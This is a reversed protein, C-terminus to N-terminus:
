SRKYGPEKDVTCFSSPSNRGKQASPEEMGMKRWTWLPHMEEMGLPAPAEKYQNHFDMVFLLGRRPTTDQPKFFWALRRHPHTPRFKSESGCAWCQDDPLQSQQNNFAVDSSLEHWEHYSGTWNVQRLLGGNGKRHMGPKMYGLTLICCPCLHGQFETTSEDRM